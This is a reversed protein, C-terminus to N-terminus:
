SHCLSPLTSTDSSHTFPTLNHFHLDSILQEPSIWPLPPSTPKSALCNQFSILLVLLCPLLWSILLLLLKVTASKNYKPKVIGMCGYKLVDVMNKQWIDVWVGKWVRGQNVLTKLCSPNIKEKIIKFGLCESHLSPLMLYPSYNGM